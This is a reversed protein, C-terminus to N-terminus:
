HSLGKINTMPSEQIYQHLPPASASAKKNQGTGRCEPSGLSPQTYATLQWGGPFVQLHREAVKFPTQCQTTVSDALPRERM